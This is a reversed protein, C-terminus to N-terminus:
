SSLAAAEQLNSTSEDEEKKDLQSLRAEELSVRGLEAVLSAKSKDENQPVKSVAESPAIETPTKVVSDLRQKVDAAQQEEEKARAEKELAQLEDDVAEEDLISPNQGAKNIITQIEQGKDMEDKMNDIVNEVSEIDGIETHISRLARTSAKIVKILEIQDDAEEIKSWIEELQFLTQTRKELVGEHLKKSRLSALARTRNKKAVELRAKESLESIKTSLKDVQSATHIIM